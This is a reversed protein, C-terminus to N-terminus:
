EAGWRRKLKGIQAQRVVPDADIMVPASLRGLRVLQRNALERRAPDISDLSDLWFGHDTSLWSVVREAGDSVPQNLAERMVRIRARQEKDLDSAEVARLYPIAAPGLERLERDAAQRERYERRSLREVLREIAVRDPIPQREVQREFDTEIERLLEALRWSPAIITLADVIRDRDSRPLILLLHWISDASCESSAGTDASPTNVVVPGHNQQRLALLLKGDADGARHVITAQEHSIDCSLRNRSDTMEYHVTPLATAATISLREVRDGHSRETCVNRNAGLRLNTVHLRGLSLQVRVAPSQDLLSSAPVAGSTAAQAALVAPIAAAVAFM